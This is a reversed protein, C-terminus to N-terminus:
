LGAERGKHARYHHWLLRSAYTRWPRWAEAAQRLTAADPRSEWGRILRLAEMLAIDAAPMIDPRGLATILYIEATWRGIGKVAVLAEIAAEDELDSLGDLDLTGNQVAEALAHAFLAKNRSLGLARLDEQTLALVRDPRVPHTAAELRQWIASASALSLQQQNIIQLLSAFGTPRSRDPPTGLRELVAALDSDLRAVAQFGDSSM